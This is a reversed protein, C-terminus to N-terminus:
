VNNKTTKIKTKVPKLAFLNEAPFKEINKMSDVRLRINFIYKKQFYWKKM